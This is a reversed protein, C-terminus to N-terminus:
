LQFVMSGIKALCMTWLSHLTEQDIDNCCTRFIMGYNCKNSQQIYLTFCCQSPPKAKFASRKIMKGRIADALSEVFVENKCNCVHKIDSNIWNKLPVITVGYTFKEKQRRWWFKKMLSLWLTEKHSIFPSDCCQLSSTKIFQDDKIGISSWQHIPHLHQFLKRIQAFTRATDKNHVKYTVPHELIFYFYSDMLETLDSADLLCKSVTTKCDQLLSSLFNICNEIDEILCKVYGEVQDLEKAGTATQFEPSELSSSGKSDSDFLALAIILIQGQMLPLIQCCGNSMKFLAKSHEDEEFFAKSAAYLSSFHGARPVIVDDKLEKPYHSLIAERPDNSENQGKKSDYLYIEWRFGKSPTMIGLDAYLTNM